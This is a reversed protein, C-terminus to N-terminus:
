GLRAVNLYYTSPDASFVIVFRRDATNYPVGEYGEGDDNVLQVENLIVSVLGNDDLLTIRKGMDRYIDGSELQTGTTGEADLVSVNAGDSPISTFVYYNGLSANNLLVRFHTARPLAQAIHTGISPM